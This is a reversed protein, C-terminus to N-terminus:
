GYEALPKLVRARQSAREILDAVLKGSLCVSETNPCEVSMLQRVLSGLWCWCRQQAVIGITMLWVHTSSNVPTDGPFLIMSYM